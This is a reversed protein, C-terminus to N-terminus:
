EQQITWPLAFIMGPHGQVQPEDYQLRMIDIKDLNGEGGSGTGNLAINELAEAIRIGTEDTIIPKTVMGM